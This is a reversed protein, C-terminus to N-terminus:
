GRGTRLKETRQAAGAPRACTSRRATVFSLEMVGGPPVEYWRRHLEGLETRMADFLAATITPPTYGPRGQRLYSEVAWAFDEASGYQGMMEERSLEGAMVEALIAEDPLRRATGKVEFDSIEWGSAVLGLFGEGLGFTREVVYHALDHVPGYGSAPGIAGATFTGDERVLVLQAASDARRHFRLTLTPM